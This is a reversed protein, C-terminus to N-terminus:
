CPQKILVNKSTVSVINFPIASLENVWHKPAIKDSLKFFIKIVRVLTDFMLYDILNPTKKAKICTVYLDQRHKNLLYKLLSSLFFEAIAPNRAPKVIAISLLFLRSNILMSINERAISAISFSESCFPSIGPDFYLYRIINTKALRCVWNAIDHQM